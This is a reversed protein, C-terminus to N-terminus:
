RGVRRAASHSVALDVTLLSIETDQSVTARGDPKRQLTSRFVRTRVKARSPQTSM